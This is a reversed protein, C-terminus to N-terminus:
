TPCNTGKRMVRQVWEDRRHRGLNRASVHEFNGMAIIREILGDANAWHIAEFEGPLFGEEYGRLLDIVFLGGPRLVRRVEGILRFLDFAHDLANTYVADVSESAFVLHHFDGPLVYSNEAGPNLDVGVAFYGLQHLAKVETGLRAGLCLVARAQELAECGAFRRTFEALDEDATEGLRHLVRSLKSSQHSLYEDYNTYKRQALQSDRQWLPSEFRAKRESTKQQKRFDNSRMLGLKRRVKKSLKRLLPM